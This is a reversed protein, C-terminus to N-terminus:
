PATIKYLWTWRLSLFHYCLLSRDPKIIGASTTQNERVTNAKAKSKTYMAKYAEGYLLPMKQSISSFFKHAILASLCWCSGVVHLLTDLLILRKLVVDSNWHTLSPWKVVPSSLREITSLSESSSMCETRRSMILQYHFTFLSKIKCRKSHFYLVFVNENSSDIM